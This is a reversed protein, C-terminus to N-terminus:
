IREEKGFDLTLTVKENWISIRTKRVNGRYIQIETKASLEMHFPIESCTTIQDILSPQFASDYLPQTM